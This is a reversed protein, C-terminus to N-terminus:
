KGLRSQFIVVRLLLMQIRRKKKSVIIIESSSTQLDQIENNPISDEPEYKKLDAERKQVRSFSKKHTMYGTYETPVFDSIFLDSKKLAHEFDIVDDPGLCKKNLFFYNNNNYQLYIGISYLSKLVQYM